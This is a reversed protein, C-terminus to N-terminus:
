FIRPKFVGDNSTAEPSGKTPVSRSGFIGDPQLRERAPQLAPKEPIVIVLSPETM